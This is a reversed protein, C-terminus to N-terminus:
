SCMVATRLRYACNAAPAHQVILGVASHLFAISPALPAGCKAQKGKLTNLVTRNM